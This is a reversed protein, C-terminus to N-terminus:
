GLEAELRALLLRGAGGKDEAQNARAAARKSREGRCGLVVARGLRDLLAALGGSREGAGAAASLRYGGTM